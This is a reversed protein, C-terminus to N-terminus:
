SPIKDLEESEEALTQMAEEVQGEHVEDVVVCPIKEIRVAM